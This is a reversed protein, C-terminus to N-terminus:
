LRSQFSLNKTDNYPKSNHYIYNWPVCEITTYCWIKSVFVADPYRCMFSFWFWDKFVVVRQMKFLNRRQKRHKVNLKDSHTPATFEDADAWCTTTSNYIYISIHSGGHATTDAMYTHTNKRQAQERRKLTTKTWGSGGIWHQICM